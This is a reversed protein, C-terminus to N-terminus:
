LDDARRQRRSVLMCVSTHMLFVSFEKGFYECICMATATAALLAIDDAYALAGTCVNGIYCAVKSERFSQLLKDIYWSYVYLMTYPRDTIV